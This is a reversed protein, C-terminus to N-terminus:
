VGEELLSCPIHWCCEKGTTCHQSGNTLHKADGDNCYKLNHPFKWPCVKGSKCTLGEHKCEGHKVCLASM